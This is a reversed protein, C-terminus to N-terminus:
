DTNKVHNHVKNYGYKGNINAWCNNVVPVAKALDWNITNAITLVQSNIEALFERFPQLQHLNDQSHWGLRNSVKLGPDGQHLQQILPLFKQNISEARELQFHWIPTPFLDRRHLQVM